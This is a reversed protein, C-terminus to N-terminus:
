NLGDTEGVPHSLGDAEGVPKSIVDAEGVSVSLGDTEKQNLLRDVMLNASVPATQTLGTKVM